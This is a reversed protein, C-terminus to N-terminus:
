AMVDDAGADKWKDDTILRPNMAKMVTSGHLVRLEVPLYLFKETCICPKVRKLAKFLIFLNQKVCTLCLFGLTLFLIHFSFCSLFFFHFSLAFFSLHTILHVEATTWFVIVKMPQVHLYNTTLNLTYKVNQYSCAAFFLSSCNLSLDCLISCFLYLLTM